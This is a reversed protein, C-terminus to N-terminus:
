DDIVVTITMMADIIMVDGYGDITVMILVMFGDIKIWVMLLWWLMLWRWLRWSLLWNEGYCWDDGYDDDYDGIMVMVMM